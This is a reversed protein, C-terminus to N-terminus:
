PCITWPLLHQDTLGFISMQPHRHIIYLATFEQQKGTYFRLIEGTDGARKIGYGTFTKGSGRKKNTM